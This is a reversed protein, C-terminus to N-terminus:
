GGIDKGIGRRLGCSETRNQFNLGRLLARLIGERCANKVLERNDDIHFEFGKSM